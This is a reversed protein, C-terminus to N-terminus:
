RAAGRPKDPVVNLSDGLLSRFQNIKLIIASSDGAAALVTAGSNNPPNLLDDNDNKDCSFILVSSLLTITAKKVQQTLRTNYYFTGPKMNKSKLKKSNKFHLVASVQRCLCDSFFTFLM